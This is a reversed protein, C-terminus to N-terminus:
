GEFITWGNKGDNMWITGDPDQAYGVGDHEVYKADKVPGRFDSPSRGQAKRQAKRQAVKPERKTEGQQTDPYAYGRTVRILVLLLETGVLMLLGVALNIILSINNGAWDRNMFQFMLDLGFAVYGLVKAIRLDFMEGNMLASYYTGAAKPVDAGPKQVRFKSAAQLRKHAENPERIGMLVNAECTFFFMTMLFSLATLLSPNLASASGAIARGADDFQVGSSPLSEWIRSVSTHNDAVGAVLLIVICFWLVRIKGKKSLLVGMREGLQDLFDGVGDVASWVRTM